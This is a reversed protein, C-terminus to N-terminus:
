FGRNTGFLLRVSNLNAGHDITESALGLLIEFTHDAAGVSEVGV